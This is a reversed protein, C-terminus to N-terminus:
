KLSKKGKTSTKYKETVYRGLKGVRNKLEEEDLNKGELWKQFCSKLTRYKHPTLPPRPTSKTTPCSKGELSRNALTSSGWICVALEKVFLSDKMNLQIKKLKEVSIVLGEGIEVEQNESIEGSTQYAVAASKFDPTQPTKITDLCTSSGPMDPTKITDLSTSSGPTQPTKITDLCTSSGSTQPTKITDLSTSSGTTMPAPQIFVPSKPSGSTNNERIGDPGTAKNPKIRRLVKIVEGVEGLLFVPDDSSNRLAINYSDAIGEAALAFNPGPVYVLIVTIQGFERPLYFPWFFVSLLEYHTSCYTGRVTINTAWSNNVFMCLGGGITKSSKQSDRDLRILTYGELNVDDSEETLWTETICLLNINKYDRNYKILAELETM